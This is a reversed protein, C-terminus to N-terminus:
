KINIIFQLFIFNLKVSRYNGKRPLYDKFTKLTLPAAPVKFRYPVAEDLFSVVVVTQQDGAGASGAATTTGGGSTSSSKSGSGSFKCFLNLDVIEEKYYQRSSFIM